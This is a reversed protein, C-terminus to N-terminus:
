HCSKRPRTHEAQKCVCHSKNGPIRHGTMVIIVAVQEMVAIHVHAKRYSSDGVAVASAALTPVKPLKDLLLHSSATSCHVLGEKSFIEVDIVLFALM